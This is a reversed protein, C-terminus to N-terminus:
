VTGVTINGSFQITVDATMKDDDPLNFSVDVAGGTAAWTEGSGAINLTVTEAPQSILLTWAAAYDDLNVNVSLQGPNPADSFIFTELTTTGMNKTSIANRSMGSWSISNIEAFIGSQFTITSGHGTDTASVPM